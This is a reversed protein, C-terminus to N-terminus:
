LRDLMASMIRIRIQISIYFCIYYRHYRNTDSGNADRIGHEIDLDAVHVRRCGAAPSCMSSPM